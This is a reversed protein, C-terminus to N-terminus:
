RHAAADSGVNIPLSPRAEIEGNNESPSNLAVRRAWKNSVQTVALSVM